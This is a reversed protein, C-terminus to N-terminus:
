LGKKVNRRLRKCFNKEDTKESDCFGSYRIKGGGFINKYLHNMM